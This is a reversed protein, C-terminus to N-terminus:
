NRRRAGNSDTKAAKDPDTGSAILYERWAKDLEDESVAGGMLKSMFAANPRGDERRQSDPVASFKTRLQARRLREAETTGQPKNRARELEKVADFGEPQIVEAGGQDVIYAAVRNPFVAIEGANLNDYRKTLRIQAHGPQLQM